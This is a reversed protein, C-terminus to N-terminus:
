YPDEALRHGLVIRVWEWRRRLAIKVGINRVFYGLRGLLRVRNWASTPRAIFQVLSGDARQYDFESNTALHRLIAKTVGVSSFADHILLTGGAEIRGAWSAIDDAVTPYDHAGDLYLLAIDQELTWNRSVESSLGRALEVKDTLGAAEINAEFEALAESGGGWRPDDFPDIAILRAGEPLASAIMITSKGQHSGIEVAVDNPQLRSTASYLTAAQQRTLWGGVNSAQDWARDFAPDEIRLGTRISTMYM